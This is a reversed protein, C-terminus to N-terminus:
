GRGPSWPVQPTGMSDTCPAPLAEGPLRPQGPESCELMPHTLLWPTPSSRRRSHKCLGCKAGRQPNHLARCVRSLRRTVDAPPPHQDSPNQWGGRSSPAREATTGLPQLQTDQSPDPMMGALLSPAAAAHPNSNPDQCTSVPKNAFPQYHPGPSDGGSNESHVSGVGSRCLARATANGPAPM